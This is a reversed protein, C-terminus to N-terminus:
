VPTIFWQVLSFFFALGARDLILQNFLCLTAVPKVSAVTLQKHLFYNQLKEKSISQQHKLTVTGKHTARAQYSYTIFHNSHHLPM